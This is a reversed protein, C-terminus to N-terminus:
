KFEIKEVREVNSVAEEIEEPELWLTGDKKVEIENSGYRGDIGASPIDKMISLLESFSKITYIGLKDNPNIKVFASDTKQWLSGDKKQAYVIGCDFTIKDWDKSEGIQKPQPIYAEMTPVSPFDWISGDKKLGINMQSCGNGEWETMFNAWDRSQSFRKPMPQLEGGWAWLSGDKKVAYMFYAGRRIKAGDFGDGIKKAGLHHKYVKRSIVKYTEFDISPPSMQGWACYGSKGFQWLSGSKKLAVYGECSNWARVWDRSHSKEQKPHNNVDVFKYVLKGERKSIEVEGLLGERKDKKFYVLYNLAKRGQPFDFFIREKHGKFFLRDAHIKSVSHIPSYKSSNSRIDIRVGSHPRGAVQDVEMIFIKYKSTIGKNEQKVIKKGNQCGFLLFIAIFIIIKRM